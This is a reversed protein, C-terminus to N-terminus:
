QSASGPGQQSSDHEAQQRAMWEETKELRKDIRQLYIFIGVVAAIPLVVFCLFGASM